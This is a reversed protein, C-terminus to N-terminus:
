SPPSGPPSMPAASGSSDMPAPQAPMPAAMSSSDKGGRMIMMTGLLFVIFAVISLYWGVSPGWTASSNPGGGTGCSSGSCSGFYSSWPGSSGSPVNSSDAKIAGPQAALLTIPTAIALLLAIIGLALAGKRMGPKGGSVFALIGALLGLVLGGIVLYETVAYLAGTKNFNGAPCSNSSSSSVYPCSNSTSSPCLSSAQPGSCSYSSSSVYNSGPHLDLNITGTASNGAFSESTKASYTYWSTLLAVILLIAGIIMLLGGLMGRKAM